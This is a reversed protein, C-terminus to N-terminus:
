WISLGTLEDLRQEVEEELLKVKAELSVKDTGSVVLGSYDHHKLIDKAVIKTAIDEAISYEPDTESDRGYAYDIQMSYAYEGFGYQYYRGTMGYTAPLLFLRTMYIMGRDYDVFYDNTRGEVLPQWRGGDWISVSYVKYLNKRRPFVGYRNYQVIENQSVNFRWSKRTRYDIRDEARRIMDEVTLDSPSTNYDFDKKLQLYQYVKTPTSYNAYPIPRIKSIIAMKNVSSCKIRIWYMEYVDDPLDAPPDELFTDKVWISPVVWRLYKTQDFVYSDVLALPNWNDGDYYEFTLGSYSGNTSLDCYFGSFRHSLGLYIIDTPLSLFNFNTNTLTNNTLDTYTGTPNGAQYLWITNFRM